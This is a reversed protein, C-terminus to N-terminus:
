YMLMTHNTLRESHCMGRHRSAIVVKELMNLIDIAAARIRQPEKVAGLATPNDLLNLMYGFLDLRTAVFVIGTSADREGHDDYQLILRRIIDMIYGAEFHLVGGRSPNILALLCSFATPCGPRMAAICTKSLSFLRLLRVLSVACPEGSNYRVADNLLHCCKEPIKM